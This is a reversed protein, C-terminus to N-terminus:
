KIVSIEFLKSKGNENKPIVLKFYPKIIDYAWSM